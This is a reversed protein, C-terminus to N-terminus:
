QTKGGIVTSGNGPGTGKLQSSEPGTPPGSQADAPVVAAFAPEMVGSAPSSSPKTTPEPHKEATSVPDTNKLEHRECAVLSVALMFGQALGILTRATPETGGPTDTM